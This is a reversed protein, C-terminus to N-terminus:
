IIASSLDLKMVRGIISQMKDANEMKEIEEVKEDLWKTVEKDNCVDKLLEQKKSGILRSRKLIDTKKPITNKYEKLKSDIKKDEKIFRAFTGLREEIIKNIEKKMEKVKVNIERLINSQMSRQHKLAKKVKSYKVLNMAIDEKTKQKKSTAKSIDINHASLVANWTKKLKKSNAFIILSKIYECEMDEKEQVDNIKLWEEWLGENTTFRLNLQRFIDEYKQVEPNTRQGFYMEHKETCDKGVKLMQFIELTM